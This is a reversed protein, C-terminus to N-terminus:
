SLPAEPSNAKSYDRINIKSFLGSAKGFRELASRLLKADKRKGKIARRIVYPIHRGEPDEKVETSDYTRQPKTRIPAIWHLGSMFVSEDLLAMIDRNTEGKPVEEADLEKRIIDTSIARLMAPPFSTPFDIKVKHEYREGLLKVGRKLVQNASSNKRLSM